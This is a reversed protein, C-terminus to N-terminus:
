LKIIKTYINGIETLAFRNAASKSSPFVYSTTQYVHVKITEFKFNSM